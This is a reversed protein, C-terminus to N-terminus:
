DDRRERGAGAVLRLEERSRVGCKRMLTSMHRRVTVESLFLRAAMQATSLGSSWLDLVDQERRTLEVTRGAVSVRRGRGRLEAILRSELARPIAAEGALAARLATSLRTPDMDKLLYGSAGGRLADFLDDSSSSVTLMVIPTAPLRSAIESVARLGSGPMRVDLLCLDPRERLAAEIADPANAAEACVEWGDSELAMRVGARTPPHDDAILVRLPGTM